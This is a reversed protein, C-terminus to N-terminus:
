SNTGMIFFSIQTGQFFPLNSKSFFMRGNKPSNMAAVSDSNSRLYLNGNMQEVIKNVRCLGYGFERKSSIPTTLAKVLLDSGKGCNRNMRVFSGEIGIGSDAVVLHVVPGKATKYTQLAVYGSDLSHEFINQCMESIVTIFNDTNNESFSSKFIFEARKRFLAVVNTIAKVSEREKGPIDTIEIISKSMGSRSLKNSATTEISFINRKVFDMRELYSSIEPSLNILSIKGGTKKLYNKGLLLLNVACYPNIFKIKSLDIKANEVAYLSQELSIINEFSYVDNLAEPSITESQM